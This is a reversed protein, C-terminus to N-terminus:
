SENYINIIINSLKDILIKNVFIQFTILMEKLHRKLDNMNITFLINIKSIRFLSGWETNVYKIDFINLINTFKHNIYLLKYM